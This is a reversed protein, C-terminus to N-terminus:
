HDIKGVIPTIFQFSHPIIEKGKDISAFQYLEEVAVLRMFNFIICSVTEGDNAVRSMSQISDGQVLTTGVVM